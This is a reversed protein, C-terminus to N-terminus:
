EYKIRPDAYSYAIDAALNSLVIAIGVVLTVGMIVPYDRQFIANFLLAGMGPWAFITEIIFAGGVLIPLQLGMVTILPILANKLGHRLVIAGRGLGKASAVTMYDQRMVELFSSRAYRMLTATPRLALITAPMALHKLYSGLSWDGGVDGIGSSPLLNLRLSFLYIGCLALFFEPISMSGFAATTLLHDFFSYRKLASLMGLSIGIIVTLLLSATVLQLTTGLRQQIRETVPRNTYYSYGLNGKVAQQLWKAYRIYVPRDLGYSRKLTEIQQPTMGAGSQPDIMASVPDGPALTILGYVLVSIGWLVPFAILLRRILYHAM